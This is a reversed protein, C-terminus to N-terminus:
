REATNTPAGILNPQWNDPVIKLRQGVEAVFDVFSRSIQRIGYRREYMARVNPDSRPFVAYWHRELNERRMSHLVSAIDMDQFSYGIFIICNGQMEELFSRLMKRKSELMEFYDFQTIVM